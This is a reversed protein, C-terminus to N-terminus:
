LQAGRLTFIEVGQHVGHMIQVGGFQRYLDDAIQEQYGSKHLATATKIHEAMITRNTCIELRYIITDGDSPCVSTFVYQYINM